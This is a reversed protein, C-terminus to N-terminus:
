SLITSTAVCGVVAFVDVGFVDVTSMWRTGEVDIVPKKLVIEFLLRLRHLCLYVRAM